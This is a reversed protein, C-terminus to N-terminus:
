GVERGGGVKMTRGMKPMFCPLLFVGLEKEAFCLLWKVSAGQRIWDEGGSM